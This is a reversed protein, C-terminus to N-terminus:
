KTVSPSGGKSSEEKQWLNYGDINSLAAFIMDAANPIRHNLDRILDAMDQRATAGDYPCVSPVVPLQYRKVVGKIHKEPLYVMPRIVTLGSRSLYTKPSFINLRGEYFLSLLFTQMVDDRHHGLAVKNYGFERAANNLAGRRLRACLSCPSRGEVGKELVIELLHTDMVHYPIELAECFRHLPAPDFGDLGPHLTIAGLEYDKHSFKRYLSLAYLLTLSDKGGSLGVAIRDGPQILSFTDDARRICGLTKKM